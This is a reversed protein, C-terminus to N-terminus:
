FTATTHDLWAQVRDRLGEVSEFAKPTSGACLETSDEDFRVIKDLAVVCAQAAKRAARGLVYRDPTLEREIAVRAQACTDAYARRTAELEEAVILLAGDLERIQDQAVAFLPDTSPVAGLEARTRRAADLQQQAEFLVVRSGATRENMSMVATM